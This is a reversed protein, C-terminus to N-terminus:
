HGSKPTWRPGLKRNLRTVADYDERAGTTDGQEERLIARFRFNDANDPILRIATDIDERAGTPDGQAQRLIARLFFSDADNPNFRIATDYDERAGSSDGQKRRLSARQTLAWKYDPQVRIAADFDERAGALDGQEQRLVGRKTLAYVGHPRLRIEADLDERAGASYGQAQRLDGRLTLAWVYDPQVRIAADFDELAGALDGQEQRLVGRKTLAYAEDPELRIAADFDERAGAGYGQAQRFGGRQTLAYADDPRSRIAADFDERAGVADGQKARLNGRVVLALAFDPKVRIAQNYFRLKEAPDTAQRGREFYAQATLEQEQVTPESGAAAQQNRAIQQLDPSAPHPVTELPVSLFQNRLRGMAEDFYEVPVRLANYRKLTAIRGTLQSANGPAEFDFGDLMLPVINRKLALATEIERRLWDDPEWCRELASPTLLVLFHARAEINGLIVREFDGSAISLFDFFVDYGHGNLHQFIALAWPANTRRYCLFVTKEVRPPMGAVAVIGYFSLSATHADCLV